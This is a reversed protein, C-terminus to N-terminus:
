WRRQDGGESNFDGGRREREVRADFVKQAESKALSREEESKSFAFSDGNKSRQEQQTNNQIKSWASQGNQSSAEDTGTPWSSSSQGTPKTNTGRRIRDWTSGSETVPDARTPERGIPSADNFDEFQQERPEQTSSQPPARSTPWGKKGSPERQMNVAGTREGSVKGSDESEDIYMGGSPSADDQQENRGGETQRAGGKATAGTNGVQVQGQGPTGKMNQTRLKVAQSVEKLRTDSLEGVSLVTMAYSGLLLRGILYGVGGSAALRLAHWAMLARNGKLTALRPPFIRPEFTEMNPQYFPSRVTERTNWAQWLGGAAGAPGGWSHLSIGKAVWYAIAAGEEQTPPRNLLQTKQQISIAFAKAFFENNYGILPGIIPIPKPLSSQDIHYQLAQNSGESSSYPDEDSAPAATEDYPVRAM